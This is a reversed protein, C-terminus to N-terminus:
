ILVKNKPHDFPLNRHYKALKTKSAIRNPDVEIMEIKRLFPSWYPWTMEYYGGDSGNRITFRAHLGRGRKSQIVTGKYVATKNETMSMLTTVAVRDGVKFPVTERPLTRLRALEVENIDAMIVRPALRRHEVPVNTVVPFDFPKKVKQFQEPTLIRKAHRTARREISAPSQTKEVKWQHFHTYKAVYGRTATTTPGARAQLVRSLQHPFM